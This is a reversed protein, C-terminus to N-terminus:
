APRAYFEVFGCASCRYATLPIQNDPDAKIGSLYFRRPEPDGPAWVARFVIVDGNAYDPMHGRNMFTGCKPCAPHFDGM